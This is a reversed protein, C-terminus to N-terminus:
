LRNKLHENKGKFILIMSIIFIVIGLILFQLSVTINFFSFIYLIAFSIINTLLSNVSFITNRYEDNKINNNIVSTFFPSIIGWLFRYSCVLLVIASFNHVINLLIFIVSLTICLSYKFLKQSKILNSIKQYLSSSLIAFLTAVFYILGNYTWNEFKVSFLIQFLQYGVILLASILSGLICSYILVFNDKFCFLVNKFSINNIKTTKITPLRLSYIVCLINFIFTLYFPFHLSIKSIFYCIFFSFCIATWQLSYSQSLFKDYNLKEERCYKFIYSEFSGSLFTQAIGYIFQSLIFYIYGNLFFLFTSITTLLSAIILAKSEGIKDSIFGTPIEFLFTSLTYVSFLFIIESNNLKHVNEFYASFIPTYFCVCILFSLYLLTNKKM